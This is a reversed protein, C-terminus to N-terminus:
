RHCTFLLLHQQQQPDRPAGGPPLLLLLLLGARGSWGPSTAGDSRYEEIYGRDVRYIYSHSPGSGGPDLPAGRLSRDPTSSPRTRTRPSAATPSFLTRDGCVSVCVCVGGSQPTRALSCTPCDRSVFMALSCSDTSVFLALCCTTVTRRYLCRSVVRPVTRRYLCRSVVRTRRYSCRSVVRPVTRRYSCRSIVSSTRRYLCRSVVRPVTRRYSCRSNVRPVTRRYL